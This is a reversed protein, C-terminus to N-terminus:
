LQPPLRFNRVASLDFPNPTRQSSLLYHARLGDLDAKVLLVDRGTLQEIQMLDLLRFLSWPGTNKEITTPRDRKGELVLRARGDDKDAPWRLPVPVIPGHRYEIVREGFTFQSRSVGADLTYPELKFQVQPEAAEHTFFGRRIVDAAAMQDLYAESVPLSRGDVNRLRYSSPDGNVFDRMYNDFFRQVIGHQKFFERFDNLAVDSASHASFPYRQKIAKSYPSYVEAHYRENLYTYVDDLVLSWSEHVLTSFWGNLPQPLRASTRRLNSMPDRQGNM